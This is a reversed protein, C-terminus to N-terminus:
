SSVSSFQGRIGLRHFVIPRTECHLVDTTYFDGRILSFLLLLMGESGFWLTVRRRYSLFYFLTGIAYILLPKSRPHPSDACHAPPCVTVCLGGRPGCCWRRRRCHVVVIVVHSRMCVCVQLQAEWTARLHDCIELLVASAGGPQIEQYHM